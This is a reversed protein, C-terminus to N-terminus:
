CKDSYLKCSRGYNVKETKTRECRALTAGDRVVGGEVYPDTVMM